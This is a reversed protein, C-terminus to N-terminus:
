INRSFQQPLSMPDEDPLVKIYTDPNKFENHKMQRSDATYGGDVM